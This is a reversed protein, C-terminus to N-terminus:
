AQCQLRLGHRKTVSEQHRYAQRLCRRRLPSSTLHLPPTEVVLFLNRFMPLLLTFRLPLSLFAFPTTPVLIEALSKPHLAHRWLSMYCVCFWLCSANCRAQWCM